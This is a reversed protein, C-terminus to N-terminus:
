FWRGFGLGRNAFRAYIMDDYIGRKRGEERRGKMGKYGVRHIVLYVDMWGDM